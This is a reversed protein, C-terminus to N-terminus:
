QRVPRRPAALSQYYRDVLERYSDAVADHRGANLRERTERARLQEALKSETQELAVLLNKKLSEWKAFDQKFAETGPASVSRQWQEPTTGGKEMARNERGLEEALQQAERMQNDVERQLREVSGRGGANTGQQGSAGEKGDAGPQKVDTGPQSGQSGTAGAQKLEEMSRQLRSQRDRLEQTQSL